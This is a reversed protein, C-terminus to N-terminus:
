KKRGEMSECFIKENIVAIGSYSDNGKHWNEVKGIIYM